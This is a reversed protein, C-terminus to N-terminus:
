DKKELASALHVIGMVRKVDVVFAIGHGPESLNAAKDIADAVQDTIEQPVLTLVVEKEPEIPINFIRQTEHIGTGRGYMITGGEAGAKRAADVVLSARGKSVITVILDFDGKIDVKAQVECSQLQNFHENHGISGRSEDPSVDYRTCRLSLGM